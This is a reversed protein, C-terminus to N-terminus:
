CLAEAMDIDVKKNMACSSFLSSENKTIMTIMVEIRTMTMIMIMMMMMMIMMMMMMMMNASINSTEVFNPRKEKQSNM